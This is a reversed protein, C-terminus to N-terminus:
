RRWLVTMLWIVVAGVIIFVAAIMLGALLAGAMYSREDKKSMQEQPSPQSGEPPPATKKKHGPLRPILVSRHEVGSMDAITRGDDDDYTKRAM